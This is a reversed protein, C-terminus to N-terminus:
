EAASPAPSLESIFKLENEFCNALTLKRTKQTETTSLYQIKFLRQESEQFDSFRRALEFYSEIALEPLFENM